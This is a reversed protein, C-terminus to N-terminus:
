WWRFSWLRCEFLPIHISIRHLICDRQINARHWWRFRCQKGYATGCGTAYWCKAQFKDKARSESSPQTNCTTGSKINWKDFGNRQTWRWDSFRNWRNTIARLIMVLPASSLVFFHFFSISDTSSNFQFYKTSSQHLWMNEFQPSVHWKIMHSQIYAESSHATTM